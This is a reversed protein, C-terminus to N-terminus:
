CIKCASIGSVSGLLEKPCESRCDPIAV